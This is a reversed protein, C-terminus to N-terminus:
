IALFIQSQSVCLCCVIIQEKHKLEVNGICEIGYFPISDMSIEFNVFSRKEKKLLFKLFEVKLEITFEEKSNVQEVLNALKVIKEM